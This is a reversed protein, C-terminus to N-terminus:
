CMLTGFFLNKNRLAHLIFDDNSKRGADSVSPGLIGIISNTKIKLPIWYWNGGYCEHM